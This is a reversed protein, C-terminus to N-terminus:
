VAWDLNGHNRPDGFLAVGVVVSRLTQNMRLYADGVVWAGASYGALMVHLANRCHEQHFRAVQAAVTKMVATTGAGVGAAYEKWNGSLLDRASLGPYSRDLSDRVLRHSKGFKDAVPGLAKEVTSGFGTAGEDTGRAGVFVVDQKCGPGPRPPPVDSFVGLSQM